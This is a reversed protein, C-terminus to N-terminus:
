SDSAEMRRVVSDQLMNLFKTRESKRLRIELFIRHYQGLSIHFTQEFFAAIEKLNSNGNNFVGVSHLAYILEVLAVKSGTWKQPKIEQREPNLFVTGNQLKTLEGEIYFRIRDNAIIKAVKYDHSTCFIPDSQFLFNDLTDHVGRLFYRKDLHCSGSRYYRYFDMNHKFWLELRLVEANYFKRLVKEGGYPANSEISYIEKYYILKSVFGPKIHKFFEIEDKESGFTYGDLASRLANLSELIVSIARESYAIPLATDAHICELQHNLEHLLTQSYQKM